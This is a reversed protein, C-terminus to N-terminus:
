GAKRLLLEEGGIALGVVPQGPPAVARAQGGSRAPSAPATECSRFPLLSNPASYHPEGWGFGAFNLTAAAQWAYRCLAPDFTGDGATTVAWVEVGSERAHAAARRARDVGHRDDDRLGNRVAFSELLYLDGRRLGEGGVVDDPNFANVFVAMDRRRAASLAFGLRDPTVGFDSGAEDFFIGHAGTVKWRAIADDVTAADLHAGMGLTVYGFVRLSPNLTGLREIIAATRRHEVAGAGPRGPPPTDYELGDGFVVVDYAAFTAAAKDVDGRAGNVLSPFGYYIALRKPPPAAVARPTTMVAMVAAAVLLGNSFLQRATTSGCRTTTM